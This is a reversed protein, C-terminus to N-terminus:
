LLKTGVQYTVEYTKFAQFFNTIFWQSMYGSLVLSERYSAANHFPCMLNKFALASMLMVAWASQVPIQSYVHM